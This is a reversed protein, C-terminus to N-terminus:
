RAHTALVSRITATEDLKSITQRVLLRISRTPTRKWQNLLQTSDSDSLGGGYAEAYIHSIKTIIGAAMRESLAVTPIMPYQQLNQVFYRAASTWGDWNRAAGWVCDQRIQDFFRETVFGIVFVDPNAIFRQLTDYSKRRGRIDWQRSVNELEDLLLVLGTNTTDRLFTAASQFVSLAKERQYSYDPYTYIHGLAVLWGSSYGDLVLRLGQAFPSWNSRCWADVQSRNFWGYDLAAPFGMITGFRCENLWQPICRHAHALSGTRGDVCHKIVALASDQIAHECLVRMHSKGTGWDGQVFILRQSTVKAAFDRLHQKLLNRTNETGVSIALASSTTVTGSRLTRVIRRSQNGSM